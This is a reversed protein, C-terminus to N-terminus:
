GLKARWDAARRRKPQRFNKEVFNVTHAFVFAFVFALPWLLYPVRPYNTM